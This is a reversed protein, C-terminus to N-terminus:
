RRLNPHNLRARPRLTTGAAVSAGQLAITMLAKFNATLALTCTTAGTSGAAAKEGTCMAFGGGTGQSTWNDMRETVNALNLNIFTNAGATSSVDQGTSFANLILCDAVTTTVGPMSVTTDAVTEQAVAHVNWPNGATVVGGVIIMRGVLHNGADSIAPAADGGVLRKYIATLKTVTGSTVSQATILAWGSPIVVTDTSECELFTLAIDDAVASYGVPFAPTIGAAGQAVAGVGVVTPMGM